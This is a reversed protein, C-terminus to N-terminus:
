RTGIILIVIICTHIYIYVYAQWRNSQVGLETGKWVGHGNALLMCCCFCVRDRLYPLCRTFCRTFSDAFSGSKKGGSLHPSDVYRCAIPKQTTKCTKKCPITHFPNPCWPILSWSSSEPPGFPLAAARPTVLLSASAQSYGPPKRSRNGKFDDLWLYWLHQSPAIPVEGNEPLHIM